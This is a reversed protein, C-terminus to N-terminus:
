KLAPHQETPMRASGKPKRARAAQAQTERNHHWTCLTRVMDITTREGQRWQGLHAAELHTPRTEPCRTGDRLAATCRTGDRTLCAERIRTPVHTPRNKDWAM